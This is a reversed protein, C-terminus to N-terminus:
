FPVEDDDDAYPLSAPGSRDLRAWRKAKGRGGRIDPDLDVFMRNHGLLAGKVARLSLGTVEVLEEATMPGTLADRVTYEPGRFRSLTGNGRLQTPDVTIPGDPDTFGITVGFAGPPGGDNVKRPYLGLDAIASQEEQQKAVFVTRRSNNEWFISGFPRKAQEPDNVAAGTIHALALMPIDGLKGHARNFRSATLQEAADGSCAAAIHDLCLFGIQHEDIVRRLADVQDEFPIGNSYWYHVNVAADQGLGEGECIRRMRYGATKQRTECDFYLVNRQRCPRGLFVDGRSVTLAAKMLIWTKGASGAGFLITMGDEAVLDPIVFQLSGPAAIASFRISRDVSLFAHQAKTVARSLLATWQGKSPNGLVHEIERRVQDRASVSLLNLRQIYPEQPTGPLLSQVEMEAHLERGSKELDSFVFRCSEFEVMVSDHSLLTVGAPLDQASANPPYKAYAEHVKREAEQPELPPRCREAAQLALMVALDLPVDAARLKAAARYLEWKRQGEPLGALLIEFDVPSRGGVTTGGSQRGVDLLWSPAADVQSLPVEWRYEAGSAHLSPGAVIYSGPGRLDVKPMVHSRPPIRDLTRYVYHTGRGTTQIATAPLACGAAKLAAWGEQGDVDVVVYGEPVALGINATGWSKWWRRIKLEDLTADKLGNLTRPHKGPSTCAAAKPCDCVGDIPTHLPMVPFGAAAYGLAAALLDDAPSSPQM